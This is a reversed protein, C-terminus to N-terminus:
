YMLSWHGVDGNKKEKSQSTMAVTALKEEGM